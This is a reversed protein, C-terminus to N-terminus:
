MCGGLRRPGAEIGMTALNQVDKRFRGSSAGTMGRSRLASVGLHRPIGARVGLHPQVLFSKRSHLPCFRM